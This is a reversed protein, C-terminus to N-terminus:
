GSLNIGDLRWVLRGDLPRFVTWLHYHGPDCSTFMRAMASIPSGSLCAQLHEITGGHSVVIRTTAEHHDLSQEFETLWETVRIRHQEVSEAGFSAIVPQKYSQEQFSSSEAKTTGLPFGFTRERLREDVQATLRCANAILEATERARRIPSTVIRAPWFKGCLHEGLNASQEKGAATLGDHEDTIVLEEETQLQSLSEAHRVLVLHTSM